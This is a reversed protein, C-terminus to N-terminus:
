REKGAPHGGVAPYATWDVAQLARKIPRNDHGIAIALAVTTVNEQSEPDSARLRFLRGIDSMTMEAPQDPCGAM